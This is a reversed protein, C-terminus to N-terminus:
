YVCAESFGDATDPFLIDDSRSRSINYWSSRPKVAGTIHMMMKTYTSLAIKQIHSKRRWTKLTKNLEDLEAKKRIYAMVDPVQYLQVRKKLQKFKEKEVALENATHVNEEELEVIRKQTAKVTKKLNRLAEDQKQLIKKHNTLMLNANGNIRKLELLHSNKQEINIQFNKNEIKLKVFDVEHICEGLEEKQILLNKLKSQQIRLSSTRLRLKELMFQATKLWEQM